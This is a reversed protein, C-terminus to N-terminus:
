RLRMDFFPHASSIPQCWLNRWTYTTPKPNRLGKAVCVCFWRKALTMFFKTDLPLCLTSGHGVIICSAVKGGCM